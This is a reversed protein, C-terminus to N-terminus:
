TNIRRAGRNQEQVIKEQGLYTWNSPIHRRPTNEFGYNHILNHFNNRHLRHLPRRPPLEEQVELSAPNNSSGMAQHPNPHTSIGALTGRESAPPHIGFPSEEEEEMAVEEAEDRGLDEQVM